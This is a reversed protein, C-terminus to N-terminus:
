LCKDANGYSEFNNEEAESYLEVPILLEIIVSWAASSSVNLYGNHRKVISYIHNGGLGTRGSNGVFVGRSIYKKLSFDKALSSGNNAISILVYEQANMIACSSSIVVRNNVSSQKNFGHRYANDLVTDFLVRMMGKDINFTTDNLVRSDYSLTFATNGFNGWSQLYSNIFENVSVEETSIPSSAFNAGVTLIFRKMYEFNDNLSYLANRLEDPLDAGLMYSINNGVKDFTMGLMHSLDSTATRIGLRQMESEYEAQKEYTYDDRLKSLLREQVALDDIVIKCNLIFQLSQRTTRLTTGSILYGIKKFSPSKLIAYILYDAYVLPSKLRFPVQNSNAYFGVNRSCKCIKIKDQLFSLAFDADKYLRQSKIIVDVPLVNDKFIVSVDDSFMASSLIKGETNNTLEGEVAEILDGLKMIKQGPLLEDEISLYLSPLLLYEHSILSEHNVPIMENTNYKNEKWFSLVKNYYSRWDLVKTKSERFWRSGDILLVSDDDRRDKSLVMIVTSISSSNFIGSPLEAVIEVLNKDVLKKRLKSFSKDFCINKPLVYTARHFEKANIFQDVIVEELRAIKGAHDVATKMGFPPTAIISWRGTFGDYANKDLSNENIVQFSEPYKLGSVALRIRAILRIDENIEGAYYHYYESVDYDLDETDAKIQENHVLGYSGLGAFPNYIADEKFYQGQLLYYALKSVEEPQAYEGHLVNETYKHIFFEVLDQLCEKLDLGTGKLVDNFATMMKSERVIVENCTLLLKLLLSDEAQGDGTDEKDVDHKALAFYLIAFVFLPEKEFSYTKSSNVVKWLSNTIQTLM